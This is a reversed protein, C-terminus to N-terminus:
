SPPPLGSKGRLRPEKPNAAAAGPKPLGDEADGGSAVPRLGRMRMRLNEAEVEEKTLKANYTRLSSPVPDMADDLGSIHKVAAWNPLKPDSRYAEVIQAVRLLMNEAAASAGLNIQDYTALYHISRM